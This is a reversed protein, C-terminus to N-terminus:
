DHVAGLARELHLQEVRALPARPGARLRGRLGLRTRGAAARAFLADHLARHEALHDADLRAAGAAAQALDDLAGAAAAVAFPARRPSRSTRMATQIGSRSLGSWSRM